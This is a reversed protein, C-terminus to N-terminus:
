TIDDDVAREKRPLETPWDADFPFPRIESNFTVYDVVEYSYIALSHGWSKLQEHTEGTLLVTFFQILVVAATVVRSVALLALSILMFVLRMWTSRSKVNKELDSPGPNSDSEAHPPVHDMPQDSSTM